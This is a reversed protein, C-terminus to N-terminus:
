EQPASLAAELNPFDEKKERQSWIWFSASEAAESIQKIARTRERNSMGLARLLKLLSKGVLGRAGVEVAFLEARSGNAELDLMLERYRELKM